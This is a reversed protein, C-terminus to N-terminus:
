RRSWGRRRSLVYLAALAGAAVILAPLPLRDAVRWVASWIAARAVWGLVTAGHEHHRYAIEAAAFPLGIM